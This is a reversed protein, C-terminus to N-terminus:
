TLVKTPVDSAAADIENTVAETAQHSPDVDLLEAARAPDIPADRKTSRV